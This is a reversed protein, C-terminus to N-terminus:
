QLPTVAGTTPNWTVLKREANIAALKANAPFYALQPGRWNWPGHLDDATRAIAGRAVDVVYMRSKSAGSEGLSNMVVLKGGEVEAMIWGGRGPLAVEHKLTGDPAFLSLTVQPDGKAHKSVAITGDRLIATGDHNPTALPLKTVIAGTRADAVAGLRPVFLRSGDPSVHTSIYKRDITVEGTKVFKKSPIDLEYIELQSSNFHAQHVRVLDPTVFYIEAAFGSKPVSALIRHSALDQVAITQPSAVAIRTGEPSLAFDNGMGRRIGTAVAHADPQDLRKTYIELEQGPKILSVPQMWAVANGSQSFRVGWWPQTAIREYKGSNLDVIYSARYDGRARTTGTLFIANGGPSQEFDAIQTLDKPAVRVVWAAYAGAVVLVIAASIWIARSLAAHSRKIDSRGRALQSLPAFFLTLVIAAGIIGLLVLGIVAGALVLPKVIYFIAGLCVATLVFDLGVLASRSRVMTNLTHSLLFMLLIAGALYPLLRTGGFTAVWQNGTALFAPVAIIVFCAVSMALAALMKGFWIAAPSVPKSFYFSMRRAVLDGVITSGGLALAVGLAMATALAGGVAAIAQPRDSSVAPILATLFPLLAMAGAMVFVRSRERLERSAIVLTSSM